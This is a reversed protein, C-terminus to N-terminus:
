SHFIGLLFLLYYTQPQIHCVYKFNWNFSNQKRKREAIRKVSLGREWRWVGNENKQINAMCNEIRPWGVVFSYQAYFSRRTLKNISSDLFVFQGCLNKKRKKGFFLLLSKEIHIRQQPKSAQKKKEDDDIPTM